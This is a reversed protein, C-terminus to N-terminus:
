AISTATERYFDSLKTAELKRVERRLGDIDLVILYSFLTALFLLSSLAAIATLTSGILGPTHEVLSERLGALTRQAIPLEALRRPVAPAAGISSASEDGPPPSSTVGDAPDGIPRFSGAIDTQAIEEENSSSLSSDRAADERDGESEPLPEIASSAEPDLWLLLERYWAHEAILRDELTAWRSPFDRITARVEAYGERIRPVLLWGFVSWVALFAAFVCTVRSRWGLEPFFRGLIRAGSASVFCFVFTVFILAFFDRLLWL